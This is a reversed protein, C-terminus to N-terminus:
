KRHLRKEEYAIFEDMMARWLKDALNADLGQREAERRVNVVVAEVREDIRAPLGERSKLAVARAIYRSREALLRVLDRDLRDIEVRLEEMSRCAEPQRRTM